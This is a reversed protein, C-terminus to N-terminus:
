RGKGDASRQIGRVKRDDAHYATVSALRKEGQRQNDLAVIAVASFKAGDLPLKKKSNLFVAQEGNKEHYKNVYIEATDSYAAIMIDAVFEVTVGKQALRSDLIHNVTSANIEIGSCFPVEWGQEACVAKVADVQKRTLLYTFGHEYGLQSIPIPTSRLVNVVNIINRMAEEFSLSGRWTAM